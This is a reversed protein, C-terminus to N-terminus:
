PRRRRGRHRRRHRPGQDTGADVAQADRREVLGEREAAAPMSAGIRTMYGTGGAHPGSAARDPDGDGGAVRHEEVLQQRGVRGRAIVRGQPELELDLGAEAAAAEVEVM